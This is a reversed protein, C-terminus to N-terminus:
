NSRLERYLSGRLLDHRDRWSGLKSVLCGEFPSADRCAADNALTAECIKQGCTWNFYAFYLAVVLVASICSPASERTCCVPQIM